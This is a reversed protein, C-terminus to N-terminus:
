TLDKNKCLLLQFHVKTNEYITQTLPRLTAEILIREELVADTWTEPIKMYQTDGLYIIPYPTFTTREPIYQPICKNTRKHRERLSKKEVGM